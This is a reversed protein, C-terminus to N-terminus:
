NVMRDRWILIELIAIPNSRDLAAAREGLDCNLDAAGLLFSLLSIFQALPVFLGPELAVLPRGPSLMLSGDLGVVRANLYIKKQGQGFIMMWEALLMMQRVQRITQEDIPM